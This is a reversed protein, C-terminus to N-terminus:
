FVQKKLSYPNYYSELSEFAMDWDEKKMKAINGVWQTRDMSDRGWPYKMELMEGNQRQLQVTMTGGYGQQPSAINVMFTGDAACYVPFSKKGDRSIVTLQLVENGQFYAGACKVTKAHFDLRTISTEAGDQAAVQLPYPVYTTSIALNKDESLLWLTSQQGYLCFADCIPYKNLPVKMDPEIWLRGENDSRLDLLAHDNSDFYQIMLRFKRNPPIDEAAVRRFVVPGANPTNVVAITKSTIKSGYTNRVERRPVSQGEYRPACGVFLSCVIPIYVSKWM